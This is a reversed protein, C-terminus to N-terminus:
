DTKVGIRAATDIRHLFMGVGREAFFRDVALRAGNYAGYDDVILIGQAALRDYLHTLEHYTSAFWDTDLRLLAIREPLTGPLTEEVEGKVLVISEPPYGTALMNARVEEISAYCWENYGDRQFVKWRSMQESEDVTHVDVEGPRSMGAFTDYLYIKRSTDGMALLAHAMLMCSGGRWVGCEVLDGAIGQRVVHAVAQYLAHMREVSTLTYARTREYLDVFEPEMDRPIGLAKTRIAYQPLRRLTFSYGFRFAIRKIWGLLM